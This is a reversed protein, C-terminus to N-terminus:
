PHRDLPKPLSLIEQLDNTIYLDCYLSIAIFPMVYPGNVSISLIVLGATEQHTVNTSTQVLTVHLSINFGITM